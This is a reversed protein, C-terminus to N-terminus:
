QLNSYIERLHSLVFDPLYSSARKKSEEGERNVFEPNNIYKFLADHIQNENGPNILVGNVDSALVEPIGGVNTSIIPHGYSMAELISIPLGENYSPLIYVDCWNLLDIKKDGSVWGEFDVLEQLRNEEIVKILQDENKNGGIKLLLKCKLYEKCSSIVKLLDFIGKRQGIEGM